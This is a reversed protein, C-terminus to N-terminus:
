WRAPRDPAGSGSERSEGAPPRRGPHRPRAAPHPPRWRSRGDPRGTAVAEGIMNVSDATILFADALALMAVLYILTMWRVDFTDVLLNYPDNTAGGSVNILGKGKRTTGVMEDQPVVFGNGDSSVVLM